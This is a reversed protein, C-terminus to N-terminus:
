ASAPSKLSSLMFTRRTTVPWLPPLDTNTESPGAGRLRSKTLMGPWDEVSTQDVGLGGATGFLPTSGIVAALV